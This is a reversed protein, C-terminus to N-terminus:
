SKGPWLHSVVFGIAALCAGGLWHALHMAGLGHSITSTLTDIKNDIITLRATTAIDTRDIRNEIAVVRGELQGIIRPAQDQM